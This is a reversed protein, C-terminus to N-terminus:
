GAVSAPEAALVVTGAMRDHVSRRLPDLLCAGLYVALLSGVSALGQYFSPDLEGGRPGLHFIVAHNLEFPLLLIAARLAARGRTLRGGGASVVRAGFLRMGPTAARESAFFAAFYFWFPLTVSLSVWLHLVWSAPIEGARIAAAAPNLPLLALQVLILGAFVLSCDAAYAAIRRLLGAPEEGGPTM